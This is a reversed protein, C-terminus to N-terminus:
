RVKIRSAGPFGGYPLEANEGFRAKCDSLCKGCIDDTPDVVTNGNEDFYDTGQYTCEDVETYDFASGDYTRYVYPCYDRHIQQLPLYSTEQDLPSALQFQYSEKSVTKMKQVIIFEDIPKTETVDPTAGTDLYKEYTRIRKVTCGRLDNNNEVIATLLNGTNSLTVVPRPLSGSSSVDWGNSKIAWPSYIEGGFSVAHVTDGTDGTVFRYIGQGYLSLDFEYLTISTGHNPKQHDILIQNSM